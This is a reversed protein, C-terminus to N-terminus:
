VAAREWPVAHPNDSIDGRRFLYNNASTAGYIFGPLKSEVIRALANAPDHYQAVRFCYYCSSSEVRRAMHFYGDHYGNGLKDHHTYRIYRKTEEREVRLRFNLPQM